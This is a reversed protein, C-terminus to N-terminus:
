TELGGMAPRQVPVRRDALNLRQRLATKVGDSLFSAKLANETLEPLDSTAFGAESIAVGLEHSLDIRSISPDDTNLTVRLGRDFLAKAPHQALSKVAGTQLNSTLCMEFTTGRRAALEVLSEDEVVSVGHGIRDADFRVIAERVNEPGGAEGAHLTLGLGAEKARLCYPAFPALPYNIEDGAVDFGVFRERGAELAAEIGPLNVEIPYHRGACVIFEVRIGFDQAAHRAAANVWEVVDAPDFGRGRAFHVPSYRLELYAVSDRAADEVAEYAVREIAERDPWFGV